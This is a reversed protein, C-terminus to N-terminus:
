LPQHNNLHTGQFVDYTAHLLEETGNLHKLGYGVTGLVIRYHWYKGLKIKKGRVECPWSDLCFEDTM